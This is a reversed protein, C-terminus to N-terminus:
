YNIFFADLIASDLISMVAITSIGLLPVAPFPRAIAPFADMDILSVIHLPHLQWSTTNTDPAGAAMSEALEANCAALICDINRAAPVPLRLWGLWTIQCASELSAIAHLSTTNSDAPAAAMSWAPRRVARQARTLGPLARQAWTLVPLAPRGCREGFVALLHLPWSYRLLHM